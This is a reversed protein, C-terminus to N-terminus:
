NSNKSCYVEAGYPYGNARMARVCSQYPSFYIYVMLALLAAGAVIAVQKTRENM